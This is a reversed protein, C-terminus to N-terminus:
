RILVKLYQQKFHLFSHNPFCPTSSSFTKLPIFYLAHSTQESIPLYEQGKTKVQRFNIKWGDKKSYHFNSWQLAICDSWRLGTLCSFIFAKKLMPFECDTDM